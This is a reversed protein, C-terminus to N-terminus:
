RRRRAGRCTTPRGRRERLILKPRQANACYRAPQVDSAGCLLRTAKHPLLAVFDAMAQLEDIAQTKLDSVSQQVLKAGEQFKNLVSKPVPCPDWSVKCQLLTAASKITKELDPLRLKEM